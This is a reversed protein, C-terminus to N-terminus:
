EELARVALGYCTTFAAGMETLDPHSEKIDDPLETFPNSITTFIGSKQEIISTLEGIYVGGGAIIIREPNIKSEEGDSSTLRNISEIVYGSLREATESDVQKMADISLCPLIKVLEDEHIAFSEMARLSGEHFLVSSIGEAEVSILMITDEGTEGVSECGNLLAVPEVDTVTNGLQRQMEGTLKKRSAFIFGGSDTVALDVSYETLDSIMKREIEWRLQKQMEMGDMEDERIMFSSLFDGPCLGCAIVSDEVTLDHETEGPSGAAIGTIKFGKDKRELGLVRIGSMTFRIGIGQSM